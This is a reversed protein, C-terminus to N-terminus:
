ESAPQDAIGSLYSDDDIRPDAQSLILNPCKDSGAKEIAERSIKAVGADSGFQLHRSDRINSQTM